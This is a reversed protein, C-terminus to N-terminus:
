IIHYRCYNVEQLYNLAHERLLGAEKNTQYDIPIALDLESKFLECLEPNM